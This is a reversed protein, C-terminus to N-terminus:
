RQKELRTLAPSALTQHTPLTSSPTPAPTTRRALPAYSGAQTVQPGGQGHHGIIIGTNKTQTCTSAGSKCVVSYCSHNFCQSCMSAGNCIGQAQARSIQTITVTKRQTHRAVAGNIFLSPVAVLTVFAGLLIRKM